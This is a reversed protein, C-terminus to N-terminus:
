SCHPGCFLGNSARGEGWGIGQVAGVWSLFEGHLRAQLIALLEERDELAPVWVVTFRNTLAPSLEKKGFDGGPNMTAVLLFNPAATIVEAGEGGREALTLTRSPELVSCPTHPPLARTALHAWPFVPPSTFAHPLHLLM